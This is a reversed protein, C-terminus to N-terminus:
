AAKRNRAAPLTHPTQQRQHPREQRTMDLAIRGSITAQSGARYVRKHMKRPRRYGRVVANSTSPLLKDDLFTRAKEGNPSFLKQLAKVVWPFRRARRRLRALRALRALATDTRCRRDLLGYVEEMIERVTRLEPLGRTLRRLTRREAPTLQRQVFLYRPRFM